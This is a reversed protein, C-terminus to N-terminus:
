DNYVLIGANGILYSSFCPNPDVCVVETGQPLYKFNTGSGAGLDLVTLPRGKQVTLGLLPEFLLAKQKNMLKNYGKGYSDVIYAYVNNHYKKHLKTAVLAVMGVKLLNGFWFQM